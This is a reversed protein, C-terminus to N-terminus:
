QQQTLPGLAVRNKDVCVIIFSTNSIAYVRFNVTAPDSNSTVIQLANGASGGGTGDGGLVFKGTFSQNLQPNAAGFQVFDVAGNM